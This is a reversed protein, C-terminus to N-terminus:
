VCSIITDLSCFELPKSTVIGIDTLLSALRQRYSCGIQFVITKLDAIGALDQMARIAPSTVLVLEERFVLEPDLDPHSVPGAVFAGEVRCTAGPPLKRM